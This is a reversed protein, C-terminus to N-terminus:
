DSLLPNAEALPKTDVLGYTFYSSVMTPEACLLLGLDFTYMNDGHSVQVVKGFVPHRVGHYSFSTLENPQDLTYNRRYMRDYDRFECTDVIDRVIEPLTESCSFRLMDGKQYTKESKNMDADYSTVKWENQALEVTAFFAVHIDPGLYNAIGQMAYKLARPDKPNVTTFGFFKALQLEQPTLTLDETM